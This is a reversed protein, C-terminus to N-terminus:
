EDDKLYKIAVEMMKLCLSRNNSFYDYISDQSLLDLNDIEKYKDALDYDRLFEESSYYAKLEKFSSLQQVFQELDEELKRNITKLDSFIKSYKIVDEKM